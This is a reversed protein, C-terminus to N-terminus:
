VEHIAENQRLEEAQDKGISIFAEGMREAAGDKQITRIEILVIAKM